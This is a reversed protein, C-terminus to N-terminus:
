ATEAAILAAMDMSDEIHHSVVCNRGKSKAVYLAFDAAHLLADPGDHITSADIASAVGICATVWPGLPSSSHPIQLEEIAGRIREAIQMALDLSTGPIVAVFEEGGYRALSDQEVRVCFQMAQAVKRLCKDGAGHGQTDNFHKFHDIDIMLISLSRGSTRAENWLRNLADHFSRRNALGTLPDTYSLEKLQRNAWALQQAHMRDRETLLFTRREQIENRWRIGAAVVVVFSMMLEFQTPFQLLVQGLLGRVIANFSVLNLANFVLAHRLRLPVLVNGAFLGMATGMLYRDIVLPSAHRALWEDCCFTFIAPATAIVGQLWAPKRPRLLTAATILLPVCVGIRLLLGLTLMHRGQASDPVLLLVHMAAMILLGFRTHSCRTEATADEFRRELVAPFRVRYWPQVLCQDIEDTIQPLRDHHNNAGSYGKM